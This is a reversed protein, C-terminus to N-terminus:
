YKTTCYPSTDALLRYADKVANNMNSEKNWRMKMENWSYFPILYCQSAHRDICIKNSNIVMAYYWPNRPIECLELRVKTILNGTIAIISTSIGTSRLHIYEILNLREKTQFFITKLLSFLVSHIVQRVFLERAFRCVNWLSRIFIHSSYCMQWQCKQQYMQMWKAFDDVAQCLYSLIWHYVKDEGEM